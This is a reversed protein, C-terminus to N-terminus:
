PRLFGEPREAPDPNLCALLFDIQATAYGHSRLAAAYDPGLAAHEAKYQVDAAAPDAVSNSWVSESLRTAFRHFVSAFGFYDARLDIGSFDGDLTEPPSYRNSRIGLRSPVKTRQVAPLPKATNFDFLYFGKEDYSVNTPKIDRILHPTEADHFTAFADAFVTWLQDLMVKTWSNRKIENSTGSGVWTRLVWDGGEDADLLTPAWGADPGILRLADAEVSQRTGKSVPDAVASFALKLCLARGTTDHAKMVLHKSTHGFVEATAIDGRESLISQGLTTAADFIAPDVQPM